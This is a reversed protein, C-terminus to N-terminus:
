SQVLCVAFLEDLESATRPLKYGGMVHILPSLARNQASSSLWSKAVIEELTPDLLWSNYFRFPVYGSDGIVSKLLIPCHDSLRRPLIEVFPNHWCDYYNLSVLVRDLKSLKSGDKTFRTFQKGSSRVESLGGYSIFQNFINAYSQSFSTGKREEKQRVSNFDSAVIWVM